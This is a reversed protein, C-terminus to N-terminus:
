ITLINVVVPNSGADNSVPSSGAIGLVQRTGQGNPWEISQWHAVHDSM